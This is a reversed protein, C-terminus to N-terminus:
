SEIQDMTQTILGAVKDKNTALISAVNADGAALATRLSQHLSMTWGYALSVDFYLSDRIIGLMEISDENRLGKQSVNLDYYIPMIDRMSLYSLTDMIVGARGPQNNTVPVAMVLSYYNTWSHYDEQTEDLKPSPLIGFTDDFDRLSTCEKMEAGMYLTRGSKFISAYHKGTASSNAMISDGESGCLAAIKEVATYFRDNELSLEPVGNQNDATYEIEMGTLFMQMANEYSAMGYICSGDLSFTFSSDGNLNTGQRVSEQFREFTWKGERVLEYPKEMNLEEMMTENFMLCWTLEFATLSLDSQAFYVAGERGISAQELTKQNWWPEDLQFEPIDRLNYVYNQTILSSVGDGGCWIVDYTGDGAMISTQAITHLNDREEDRVDLVVNYEQEVFRNRNYVADDLTEGTLTEHDIYTYMNWKYAANLITFSDGGCDLEPFPYAEDTSKATVASESGGATTKAPTDSGGCSAASMLMAALLFLAIVRKTM